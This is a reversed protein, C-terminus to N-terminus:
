FHSIWFIFYTNLSRSMWFMLHKLFIINLVHFTLSISQEFCSINLSRITWFMFHKLFLNNLVHFTKSIHFEFFSIRIKFFAVNLVHFTEFLHIEFCLIKYFCSTWFMFHKLFKVNLNLGQFTESIYCELCTVDSVHREFFSINTQASVVRENHGIVYSTWFCSINLHSM